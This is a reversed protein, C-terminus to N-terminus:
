MQFTHWNNIDLGIETIFNKIRTTEVMREELNRYYICLHWEADSRVNKAVKYLYPKDVDALSHGYVM